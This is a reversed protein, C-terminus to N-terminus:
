QEVEPLGSLSTLISVIGALLSTSAVLLWDVQSIVASTSIAAVATQAITRMARIGAAKLWNITKKKM